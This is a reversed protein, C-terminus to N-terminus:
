HLWCLGASSFCLIRELPGHRSSFLLLMWLCLSCTCSPCLREHCSVVAFFICSSKMGVKVKLDSLLKQEEDDEIGQAQLEKEACRSSIRKTKECLVALGM